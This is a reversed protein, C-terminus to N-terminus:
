REVPLVETGKIWAGLGNPLTVQHWGRDRGGLRVKVGVAVSAQKPYNKGPGQHAHARDAVIVGISANDVLYARSIMLGGSSFAFLGFIIAAFTAAARRSTQESQRIFWLLGFLTCWAVSFILYLALPSIQSM